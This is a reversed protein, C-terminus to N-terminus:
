GLVIKFPSERLGISAALKFQGAIAWAIGGTVVVGMLRCTVAKAPARSHAGMSGRKELTEVTKTSM